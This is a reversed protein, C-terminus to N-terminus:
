ENGERGKVRGGKRGEKRGCGAMVQRAKSHSTIEKM